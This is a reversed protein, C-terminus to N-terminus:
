WKINPRLILQHNNIGEEKLEGRYKEGSNFLYGVGLGFSLKEYGIPWKKELVIEAETLTFSTANVAFMSSFASNYIFSWVSKQYDISSRRAGIYLNNVFDHNSHMVTGVRFSWDLDRRKQERTGKLKFELTVWKDHHAVNDKISYDGLTVLYGMYARNKGVKDDMNNKFVVMRGMFFSISYPEEFGATMTKVLNIDLLQSQEYQKPHNKRFYLGGIALPHVSAEMLFINPSFTHLILEKYIETESYNSADLIEHDPDLDFFISLNSYYFDLEYDYEVLTEAWITISIFITFILTYQKLL